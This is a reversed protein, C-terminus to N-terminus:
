KRRTIGRWYGEGLYKELEDKLIQHNDVGNTVFIRGKSPSVYGNEYRDKWLNSLAQRQHQPCPIGKNPAPKGKHCESNLKNLRAKEEESKNAWTKKNSISSKLKSEETHHKGLMGFSPNAKEAFPSAARSKDPYLYINIYVKIFAPNLLKLVNEGIVNFFVAPHELFPRPFSAIIIASAFSSFPICGKMSMIFSLGSNNFFFVANTIHVSSMASEYQHM